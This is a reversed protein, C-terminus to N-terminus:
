EIIVFIVNLISSNGRKNQDIIRNLNAFYIKGDTIPVEEWYQALMNWGANEIAHSIFKTCIDCEFLLKKSM